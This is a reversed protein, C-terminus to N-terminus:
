TGYELTSLLSTKESYRSISVSSTKCRRRGSYQSGQPCIILTRRALGRQFLAQWIMGIEKGLGVEDALLFRRVPSSVVKHATFIQHPLLETRANSLQGGANAALLRAAMTKMEFKWPEDWEGKEM